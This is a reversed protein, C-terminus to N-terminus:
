TQPLRNEMAMATQILRRCCEGGAPCLFVVANARHPPCPQTGGALTIAAVINGSGNIHKHHMLHHVENMRQTLNM